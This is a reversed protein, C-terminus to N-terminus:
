KLVSIVSDFYIGNIRKRNNKIKCLINDSGRYYSVVHNDFSLQSFIESSHYYKVKEKYELMVPILDLQLKYHFIIDVIDNPLYM